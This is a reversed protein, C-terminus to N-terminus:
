SRGNARPGKVGTETKLAEKTAEFAATLRTATRRLTQRADKSLIGFAERTEEAVGALEDQAAKVGRRLRRRLATGTDPAALLALGAGVVAGALFVWAITSMSRDKEARSPEEM